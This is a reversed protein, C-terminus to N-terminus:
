GTGHNTCGSSARFVCFARFISWWVSSPKSAERTTDGLIKEETKLKWTGFSVRRVVVHLFHTQRMILSLLCQFWISHEFCAMVFFLQSVRLVVYKHHTASKATTWSGTIRIIFPTRVKSCRLARFLVRKIRNYPYRSFIRHCTCCRVSSKDLSFPKRIQCMQLNSVDM